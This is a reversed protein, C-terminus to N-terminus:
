PGSPAAAMSSSVSSASTVSHGGAFHCPSLLDREDDLRFDERPAREGVTRDRDIGAYSAITTAIATRGVVQQQTLGLHASRWRSDIAFQDAPDDSDRYDATDGALLGVLAM